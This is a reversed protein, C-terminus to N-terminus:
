INLRNELVKIRDLLMNITNMLENSTSQMINTVYSNFATENKIDVGLVQIKNVTLTGFIILDQNIVGDSIYRNSTGNKVQDLTLSNIKDNYNLNFSNAFDTVFVSTVVNRARTDTYYLNKKGEKLDDTTYKSITDTEFLINAEKWYLEGNQNTSLVINSSNNPLYPLVYNINSNIMNENIINPLVFSINPINSTYNAFTLRDTSIGDNIYLSSWDNLTMYKDINNIRDETFGIAVHLAYNSFGIESTDINSYIYNSNYKNTNGLFLIENNSYNDYKLLTNGINIIYNNSINLNNGIYISNSSINKSKQLNNNNGILIINSNDSLINSNGYVISNYINNKLIGSRSINDNGLIFSKNINSINNDYGINVSNNTNYLINNNGYLINNNGLIYNSNGSSINQFGLTKNFIGITTSNDRSLNLSGISIANYSTDAVGNEFNKGIMINNSGNLLKGAEYGIYINELSAISSEGAKYGVYTNFNNNRLIAAGIKLDKGANEGVIASQNDFNLNNNLANNNYRAEGTALISLM